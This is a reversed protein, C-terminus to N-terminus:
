LSLGAWVPQGEGGGNVSKKKGRGEEEEKSFTVSVGERHGWRRAGCSERKRHGKM